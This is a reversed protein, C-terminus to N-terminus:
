RFRTADDTIIAFHKYGQFSAPLNNPDGLTEGGGGIDIHLFEGRRHSRRMPRKSLKKQSGALKCTECFPLVKSGKIKIGSRPDEALRIIDDANLHGFRTHWVEIPEYIPRITVTTTENPNETPKAVLIIEM